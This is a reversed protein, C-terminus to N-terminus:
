LNLCGWIYFLNELFKYIFSVKFLAYNESINNQLDSDICDFNYSVFKDITLQLQFRKTKLGKKSGASDIPVAPTAVVFTNLM